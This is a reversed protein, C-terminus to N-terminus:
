VCVGEAQAEGMIHSVLHWVWIVGPLMITKYINIKINKPLFHSSLLNRVSLYCSNGSNLRSKIEVPLCKENTPATELCKFNAVSEFSKNATKVNYSQQVTQQCSVFMYKMREASGGVGAEQSTVLFAEVNKKM